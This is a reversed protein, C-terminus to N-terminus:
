ILILISKMTYFVTSELSVIQIEKKLFMQDSSNKDRKNVDNVNTCNKDKQKLFHCLNLVIVKPGNIDIDM